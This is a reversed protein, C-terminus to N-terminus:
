EGTSGCMVGFLVKQARHGSGQEWRLLRGKDYKRPGVTKEYSGQCGRQVTIEELACRQMAVATQGM